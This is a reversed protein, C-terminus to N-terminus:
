LFFSEGAKFLISEGVFVILRTLATFIGSFMSFATTVYDITNYVQCFLLNHSKYKNEIQRSLANVRSPPLAVRKTASATFRSTYARQSASEHITKQLQQTVHTIRVNIYV